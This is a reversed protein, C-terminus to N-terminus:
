QGYSTPHGSLNVRILVGWEGGVWAFVNSVCSIWVLRIIDLPNGLMSVCPLSSNNTECRKDSKPLRIETKSIFIGTIFAYKSLKQYVKDIAIDFFHEQKSRGNLIATLRTIKFLLWFVHHM